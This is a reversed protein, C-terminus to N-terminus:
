RRAVLFIPQSMVWSRSSETASCRNSTAGGWRELLAPHVPRHDVLEQLRSIVTGDLPNQPNMGLAATAVDDVHTVVRSKRDETRHLLDRFEEFLTGEADQLVIGPEGWQGIGAYRGSVPIFPIRQPRHDTGQHKILGGDKFRGRSAASDESEDQLLLRGLLGNVPKQASVPLPAHDGVGQQGVEVPAAVRPLLPRDAFCLSSAGRFATDFADVDVFLCAADETRRDGLVEDFVLLDVQATDVLGNDGIVVTVAHEVVCGPPALQYRPRVDRFGPLESVPVFLVVVDKLHITGSPLRPDVVLVAPGQEVGRGRLHQTWRGPVLDVRRDHVDVEQGAQRPCLDDPTGHEVDDDVHEAAHDDANVDPELPRGPDAGHHRQGVGCRVLNGIAASEPDVDFGVVPWALGQRIDQKAVAAFDEAAHDVRQAAVEVDLDFVSAGVPGVPFADDFLTEAEDRGLEFGVRGAIDGFVIPLTSPIVVSQVRRQVDILERADDDVANEVVVIDQVTAEGGGGFEGDGVPRQAEPLRQLFDERGGPMLPAPHM